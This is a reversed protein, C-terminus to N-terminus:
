DKKTKTTNQNLFREWMDNIRSKIINYDGFADIENKCNILETKIEGVERNLVFVTGGIGLICAVLICELIHQSIWSPKNPSADHVPVTTSPEKDQQVNEEQTEGTRDTEKIKQTSKFALDPHVTEKSEPGGDSSTSYFKRKISM